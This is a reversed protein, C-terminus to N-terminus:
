LRDAPYRQPQFTVSRLMGLDAALDKKRTRLKLLDIGFQLHLAFLSEGVRPIARGTRQTHEIRSDDSRSPEIHKGVVHQSPPLLHERRVPCVELPELCVTKVYVRVPRQARGKL